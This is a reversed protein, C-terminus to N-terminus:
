DRKEDSGGGIVCKDWVAKPKQVTNRKKKKRLHCFFCLMGNASGSPFLVFVLFLLFFFTVCM